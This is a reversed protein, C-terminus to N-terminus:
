YKTKCLLESMYLTTVYGFINEELFNFPNDLVVDDFTRWKARKTEFSKLVFFVTVVMDFINVIINLILFKATFNTVLQKHRSDRNLIM